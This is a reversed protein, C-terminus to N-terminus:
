SFKRICDVRNHVGLKKYIHSAHVKVTIHSIGLEEAIELNTHGKLISDFVIREQRTLMMGAPTGNQTLNVSLTDDKAAKLLERAYASVKRKEGSRSLYVTLLDVMVGDEDLYSRFYHHALGIALSQELYELAVKEKRNRYASIALLNCLEVKSHDRKSREAFYLLRNLLTTADSYNQQAMLVRAYVILEYEKDRTIERYPNLGSQRAWEGTQELEGLDLHLRALFADLKAVWQSRNKSGMGERLLEVIRIAGALDGEARKIKAITLTAPVQVGPYNSKSSAEAAAIAYQLGKLLHNQEYQWEGRLLAPYGTDTRMMRLLCDMVADFKVANHNQLYLLPHLHSRYLSLECRNTDVFELMKNESTLQEAAHQLFVLLSELDHNLLYFRVRILIHYSIRAELEESWDEQELLVIARRFLEMAKVFDSKEQLCGAVATM